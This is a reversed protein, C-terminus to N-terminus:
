ILPIYARPLPKRKNVTDSDLTSHWSELFTEQSLEDCRMRPHPYRPQKNHDTSEAHQKIASESNSACGPDPEVRRSNWSHKSEGIYAFLCDRCRLKYVIGQVRNITPRDKPKKFIHGLTRLRQGFILNEPSTAWAILHM